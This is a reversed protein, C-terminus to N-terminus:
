PPPYSVHLHHYHTPDTIHIFERVSVTRRPNRTDSKTVTRTEGWTWSSLNNNHNEWPGLYQGYSVVSRQRRGRGQLITTRSMEAHADYFNEEIEPREIQGTNGPSVSAVGNHMEVDNLRGIDLSYGRTHPDVPRIAARRASNIRISNLNRTALITRAFGDIARQQLNQVQQRFRMEIAVERSEISEGASNYETQRLTTNGSSGTGAVITKHWDYSSANQTKSNFKNAPHNAAYARPNSPNTSDLNIDVNKEVKYSGLKSTHKVIDMNEDDFSIKIRTDNDKYGIFYADRGSGKREYRVGGIYFFKKARTENAFDESYNDNHVLVGDKGVYYTHNDEVEFNYVTEDREEITIDKLTLMSGKASIMTEGRKLDKAQVWGKDKVYYPHNWTTSLKEEGITLNYIQDTNRVFTNLVKKYSNTKTKEDWSLVM